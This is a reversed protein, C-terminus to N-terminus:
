DHRNKSPLPCDHRWDTAPLDGAIAVDQLYQVVDDLLRATRRDTARVEDARELARQALHDWGGGYWTVANELRLLRPLASRRFWSGGLFMNHTDNNQM